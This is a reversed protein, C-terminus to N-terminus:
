LGSQCNSDLGALSPLDYVSRCTYASVSGDAPGDIVSHVLLIESGSTAAYLASGDVQNRSGDEAELRLNELRAEFDLSFTEVTGSFSHDNGVRSIVTRDIGSGRITVFDAMPLAESVPYTGPAIRLVCPDASSPTGCWTALDDMAAVPDGYDGTGDKAVWAMRAFAGGVAASCGGLKGSSSNMCVPQEQLADLPLDSVVLPGAGVVLGGEALLPLPTLALLLALLIGNCKRRTSM